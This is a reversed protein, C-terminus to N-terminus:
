GKNKWKKRVFGFEDEKTKVHGNLRADLLTRFIERYVPGPKFGMAKLDKGNLLINMPRLRTFYTSIIMRAKENEARAMLYLLTEVSFPRLKAYLLSNPPDAHLMFWRLFTAGMGKERSFFDRYRESVGIRSCLEGSEKEDLSSTLGLLYIVWKKYSEGLFLLDYWSMVGKINVFLRKMKDNFSIKPHIIQLLGYKDMRSVALLPDDEELILRLEAFLRRGTLKKLFGMRVANEILNSTLKGIKFGFRQEFRIARFVRTPDEVFSLNHLVRITKDKIDQQARFFDILTGFEERNLSVALTNITFDRRYLDLKISGIEVTPMSAPAKYYEIRATAVDVKLTNSLVVVATGFKEHSRVRGGYEKAFKKAFRIGDGEIVIDVDLNERYLYLDRVFGGVAYARYGLHDAIEGIDKLMQFMECTLRQKMFQSFRRRKNKFRHKTDFSYQIGGKSDGVMANLLDTRTIVGAVKGNEVVPLLRQKNQIIKEQIEPLLGAPAISSFDTVMYERVPVAKLGHHLARELIQRSIMGMVTDKEMVILVNINYRTLAENADDLTVNPGVHIVPSSMLERATWRPRVQKELFVILKEEAQALTYGKISASAAFPHGGGGFAAAIAGADVESLGSRGILYIRDEMRALMFLVDINDMDRFKHVLVALDAIYSEFSITTIVIDIGNILYHAASQIMENLVTVQHPELERILLDSVTKLNAGKSLLYAGARLDDETTSSFTFSGTDEYLGLAMITAEESTIEIGKKRLIRSLITINAGTKEIVELSGRIDDSMPPHHDYIHIDLGPRDIIDAFKGIRGKQRTDVIILRRVADLDIKKIRVWNLLYIASDVFFNRLSREQSGAFVVLADPYIKQAALMSALADFDANVHTTIVVLGNSSSRKDKM